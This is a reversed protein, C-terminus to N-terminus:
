VPKEVVREEYGSHSLAACLDLLVALTGKLVLVARALSELL